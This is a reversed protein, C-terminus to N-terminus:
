RRREPLLDALPIRRVRTCGLWAVNGAQRRAETARREAIDICAKNRRAVIEKTEQETFYIGCPIHLQLHLM